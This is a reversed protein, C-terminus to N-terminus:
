PYHNISIALQSGIAGIAEVAHAEVTPDSDTLLNLLAPIASEAGM